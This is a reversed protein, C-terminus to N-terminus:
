GSTYDIQAYIEHDDDQRYRHDPPKLHSRPSLKQKRDCKGKAEHLYEVVEVLVFSM